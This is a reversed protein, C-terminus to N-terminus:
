NGSTLVREVLKNMLPPPIIGRIAQQTLTRVGPFPFRYNEIGAPFFDVLLINLDPSGFVVHWWHVPIYIFEGPQLVTEWGIVEDRGSPTTMSSPWGDRFTQTSTNFFASLPRQKGIANSYKPDFLVFRKTGVIQSSFAELSPHFHMGAYTQRGMMIDLDGVTAARRYPSDGLDSLLSPFVMKLPVEVLYGSQPGGKEAIGRLYESTKEWTLTSKANPNFDRIPISLDDGGTLYDERAWRELAPWEDMSGTVVVPRGVDVYNRQLQSATPRHIRPLQHLKM